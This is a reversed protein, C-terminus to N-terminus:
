ICINLHAGGSKNLLCICGPTESAERVPWGREYVPIGIDELELICEVFRSTTICVGKDKVRATSDGMLFETTACAAKGQVKGAIVAISTLVRGGRIRQPRRGGGRM